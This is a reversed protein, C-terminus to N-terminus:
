PQESENPTVPDISPLVEGNEDLPVDYQINPEVYGSGALKKFIRNTSVVNGKADLTFRLATREDGNTALIIKEQGITTLTPNLKEIKVSVEVPKNSRNSFMHANVIYEGPVIGRITVVERNDECKFSGQPTNIYDNFSGMDDRDIALYGDEKRKYFVLCGLPDQIYADVDDPLGDAWTFTILVEAKREPSEKDKKSKPSIYMFAIGFLVIFVFLTNWLMDM